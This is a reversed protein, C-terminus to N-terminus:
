LSAAQLPEGRCPRPSAANIGRRSPATRRDSEPPSDCRSCPAPLPNIAEARPKARTPSETATAATIPTLVYPENSFCVGGASAAAKGVPGIRALLWGITTVGASGAAGTARAAAAVAGAVAATVAAGAVAAGALTADCGAALVDGGGTGTAAIGAVGLASGDGVVARERGVSSEAFGAVADGDSTTAAGGGDCAM